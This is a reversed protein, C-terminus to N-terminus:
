KPEGTGAEASKVYGNYNVILKEEGPRNTTIELVGSYHGQTAKSKESKTQAIIHYENGEKAVETKLDLNDNKDVVSLIKLTGSGKRDRITIKGERVETAVHPSLYLRAPKVEVDGFVEASVQLNVTPKKPSNTTVKLNGNFRGLPIDKALAVTLIKANSGDTADKMDYSIHPSDSEVKEIKFDPLSKSLIKVERKNEEDRFVNSFFAKNPIVEVEVKVDVSIKLKVEPQDADNSTVTIYKTVRGSGKKTDYAAKIEGTAGPAIEKESVIAATCGCSSRVNLLSLTETGKNTVKFIHTADDGEFVEGFDWELESFAIDPGTTSNAPAVPAIEEALVLSPALWTTGISLASVFLGAALIQRFHTTM